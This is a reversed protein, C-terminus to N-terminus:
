ESSRVPIRVVVQAGGDACGEFWAGGGVLAVKDKTLTLGLHLGNSGNSPPGRGDDRVRLEVSDGLRRLHVDVCSAEAHRVVNTMAEQTCEYLLMAVALPIEGPEVTAVDLRVDIATEAQFARAYRQLTSPLDHGDLASRRLDAIATRIDGIAGAVQEKVTAAIAGAQEVHGTAIASGINDAQIQVAALRQLVLDHMDGAIRAREREREDIVRDALAARERESQELQKSHRLAYRAFLLPVLFPAVAWWGLAAYVKAFIIGLFGLVLYSGLFSPWPSVIRHLTQRPPTGYWFCQATAVLVVNLTNYGIIALVIGWAGLAPVHLFSAAGATALALQARNFAAHSVSVERRLEWETFSGVLVVAAAVPAPFLYAVAIDVPGAMTVEVDSTVPAPLLNSSACALVWFVLSSAAVHPGAWRGTLAGWGIFAVAAAVVASPYAVACHKHAM